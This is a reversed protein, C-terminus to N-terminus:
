YIENSVLSDEYCAVLRQTKTLLFIKVIEKKLTKPSASDKGAYEEIRKSRVSNKDSNYFLKDLQWNSSIDNNSNASCMKKYMSYVIPPHILYLINNLERQNLNMIRVYGHRDSYIVLQKAHWVAIDTAYNNISFSADYQLLQPFQLLENNRIDWICLIGMNPEFSITTSSNNSNVGVVLTPEIGLGSTVLLHEDHLDGTYLFRAIFCYSTHPKFVVCPFYTPSRSLPLKINSKVKTCFSTSHPTSSVNKHVDLASESVRDIHSLPFKWICVWGNAHGSIIRTGRENWM